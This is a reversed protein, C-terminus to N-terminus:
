KKSHDKINFYLQHVEDIVERTGLTITIGAKSDDFDIQPPPVITPKEPTKIEPIDIFKKDMIRYQLTEEFVSKTIVLHAYDLGLYKFNFIMGEQQRVVKWGPWKQEIVSIACKPEVHAWNVFISQTDYDILLTEYCDDEKIWKKVRHKKTFWTYADPGKSLAIGVCPVQGLQYHNFKKNRIMTVYDLYDVDTYIMEPLEPDDNIGEFTYECPRLEEQTDIQLHHHIDEMGYNTYNITWNPWISELKKLYFNKITPPSDDCSFVIIHKADVDILLAGYADASYPKDEDYKPLQPFYDKCFALGQALVNTTQYSGRRMYYMTTENNEKWIYNALEGM